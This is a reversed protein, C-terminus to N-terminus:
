NWKKVVMSTTAGSLISGIKDPMDIRYNLRRKSWFRNIILRKLVNLFGEFTTKTRNKVVMSTTAGSSISGIKDLVDICYNLSRESWFGDM